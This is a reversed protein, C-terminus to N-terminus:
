LRKVISLSNLKIYKWHLYISLDKTFNLLWPQLYLFSIMYIGCSIHKEFLMFNSKYSQGNNSCDSWTHRIVNDVSIM